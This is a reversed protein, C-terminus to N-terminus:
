RDSLRLIRGREVGVVGGAVFLLVMDFLWRLWVFVPMFMLMPLPLPLPRCWGVRLGLMM